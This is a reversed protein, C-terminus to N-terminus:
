PEIWFLEEGLAVLDGNEPIVRRVTGAFDSTIENMLKMAEVICLVQGVAVRDGLEVFPDTGPAPSRYFVGVLPATVRKVNASPAAPPPAGNVVPPAPVAVAAIAPQAPQAERRVLEYTTEGVRLRVEDLDHREMLESLAQIHQADERARKSV